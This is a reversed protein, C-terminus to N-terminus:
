VRLWFSPRRPTTNRLIPYASDFMTASVTTLLSAYPERRCACEGISDAVIERLPLVQYENSLFEIQKEFEHLHLQCWNFVELPQEVVGHYMVIAVSGRQLQRVLRVGYPLAAAKRGLKRGARKVVDRLMIHQRNNHCIVQLMLGYVVFSM